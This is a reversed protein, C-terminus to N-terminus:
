KADGLTFRDGSEFLKSIFFSKFIHVTPDNLGVQKKMVVIVYHLISDTLLGQPLLTQLDGVTVTEGDSTVFNRTLDEADEKVKKAWPRLKKLQAATLGDSFYKIPKPEKRPAYYRRKVDSQSEIFSM